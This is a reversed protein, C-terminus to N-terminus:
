KDEEAHREYFKRLWRDYEENSLTRQAEKVEAWEESGRVECRKTGGKTVKVRVLETQEVGRYENHAKITAKITIRDDELVQISDGGLNGGTKWILHAGDDTDFKYITTYGFATEFTFSGRYTVEIEIKQGVEGYFHGRRIRELEEQQKKWEAEQRAREAAREAEEAARKEAEKARKAEQKALWEPTYEYEKEECWGTGNCDFCTGSAVHYFQPIVGTGCCKECKVTIGWVKNGNKYEKILRRKEM